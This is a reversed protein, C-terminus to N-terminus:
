RAPDAPPVGPSAATARAATGILRALRSLSRLSDLEVSEIPIRRGFRREIVLLLEVLQLSDLVGSEFLDTDACPVEVHLHELLLARLAEPDVEM